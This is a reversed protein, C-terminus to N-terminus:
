NQKRFYYENKIKKILLWPWFVSLSLEKEIEKIKENLKSRSKMDIKSSSYRLNELNIMNTYAITITITIYILLYIM